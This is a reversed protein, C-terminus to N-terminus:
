AMKVMHRERVKLPQCELLTQMNKQVLALIRNMGFVLITTAIWGHLLTQAFHLVQLQNLHQRGRQIHHQDLLLSYLRVPHRFHLSRKMTQERLGEVVSVVLRFTHPSFLTVFLSFVCASLQCGVEAANVLVNNSWNPATDCGYDMYWMCGDNFSDVFGFYNRCTKEDGSEFNRNGGGCICCAKHILLSASNTDSCPVQQLM